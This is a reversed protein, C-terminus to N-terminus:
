KECKNKFFPLIRAYHLPPTTELPTKKWDFFYTKNMVVKFPNEKKRTL